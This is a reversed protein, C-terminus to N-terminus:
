QHHSLRFSDDERLRPDWKNEGSSSSYPISAKALMVDTFLPAKNENM